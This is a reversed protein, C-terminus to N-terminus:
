NGGLNNQILRKFMKSAVAYGHLHKCIARKIVLEVSDPDTLKWGFQKLDLAQVNQECCRLWTFTQLHARKIVLEVSDPDRPIAM